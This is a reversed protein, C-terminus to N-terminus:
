PLAQIVKSIRALDPAPFQMPSIGAGEFLQLFDNPKVILLGLRRAFPAARLIGKDQTLFVHMDRDVAEKVLIRDHGNPLAALLSQYEPIPTQASPEIEFLPEQGHESEWGEGMLSGEENEDGEGWEVYMLARAFRELAHERRSRREICLARKADNLIEDFLHIRIDWFCYHPDMIRGIAHVQKAYEPDDIDLDHGNWLANGFNLYDILVNTDWAMQLPGVGRRYLFLHPASAYDFHGYEM